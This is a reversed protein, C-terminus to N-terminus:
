LSLPWLTWFKEPAQADYGMPNGNALAGRGWHGKARRKAQSQRKFLNFPKVL